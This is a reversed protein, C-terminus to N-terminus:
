EPREGLLVQLDGAQYTWGPASSGGVPPTVQQHVQIRRIVEEPRAVLYAETTALHRHCLHAQVDVLPVQPDGALRLACTHRFDHLVRDSGLRANVRLPVARLAQYGLPRIPRRRTVWLPATLPRAPQEALYRALWLFFAPSAAVV